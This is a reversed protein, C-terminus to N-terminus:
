VRLRSTLTLASLLGQPLFSLPGLIRLSLGISLKLLSTFTPAWSPLQRLAQDKLM